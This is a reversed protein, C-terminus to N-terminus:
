KKKTSKAKKKDAPKVQKTDTVPVDKTDTVPSDAEKEEVKEAEDVANEPTEEDLPYVKLTGRAIRIKNERLLKSVDEGEIVYKM